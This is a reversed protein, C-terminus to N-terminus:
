QSSAPGFDITEALSDDERLIQIPRSSTIGFFSRWDIDAGVRIEHSGLWQKKPFEYITLSQLEKGRRSWDNFYNGGWGQPTILMDATGQGQASSDFRTYQ